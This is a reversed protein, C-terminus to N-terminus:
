LLFYKEYFPSPLNSRHIIEFKYLSHDEILYEILYSYISYLLYTKNLIVLKFYILHLYVNNNNM